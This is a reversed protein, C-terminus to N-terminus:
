QGAADARDIRKPKRTEPEKRQSFGRNQRNSENPNGQIREDSDLRKLPNYPFISSFKKEPRKGPKQLASIPASMRAHPLAANSM